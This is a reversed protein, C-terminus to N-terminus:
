SGKDKRKKKQERLLKDKWWMSINKRIAIQHAFSTGMSYHPYVEPSDLHLNSLTNIGRRDKQHEGFVPFRSAGLEVHAMYYERPFCQIEPKSLAMKSRLIKKINDGRMTLYERNFRQVNPIRIWADHANVESSKQLVLLNEHTWPSHLDKILVFHPPLMGVEFCENFVIRYRVWCWDPEIPGDPFIYKGVRENLFYTEESTLTWIFQDSKFLGQKSGSIELGSLSRGAGFSADVINHPYLVEVGRAELWDLAKKARSRSAVRFSFPAILPTPIGELAGCSNPVYTTGAWQHSFHELWIQDFANLKGHSQGLAARRMNEIKLKSLSGRMELPGHDFWFTFGNPSEHFSDESIHVDYQVDGYNELSFYGFPGEIDEPEWNGLRSTVEFLTTQIGDKALQAAITHGRGFASVIAVPSSLSSM